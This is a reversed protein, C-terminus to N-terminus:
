RIVDIVETERGGKDIQQKGEEGGKTTKYM